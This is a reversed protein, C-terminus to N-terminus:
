KYNSALGEFSNDTLQMKKMFKLKYLDSPIEGSLENGSLALVELKELDGLADPLEGALANGSLDLRQLYTLNSLSSPLEGELNNASLDLGVVKDNEITVGKWTAVDADLDWTVTWSDGRTFRYVDELANQEAKSIQAFASTSIFLIIFFINFVNM